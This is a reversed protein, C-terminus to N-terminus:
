KTPGPAIGDRTVLFPYPTIQYASAQYDKKVRRSIRQKVERRDSFLVLTDRCPVGAWFTKGLPGSFMRHLDPHLLRSSELNDGATVVIVRGKDSFSAGMLQKPWALNTLNDIATEHLIDNTKEWRNVDWGTVFRFMNKSKIAYVIIVDALWETVVFHRTPGESKVYDRPKLIPMIRTSADEWSEYGFDEAPSQTLTDVFHQIIKDRRKPSARVERLINSLYVVQNKGKINTGDFQFEQDPHKERLKALVENYLIRAFLEKDRTIELSAMLKFFAPNWEGCEAPPVQTSAFLILDGGAVIWYNGGEGEKTMDAIM